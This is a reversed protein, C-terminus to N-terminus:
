TAAPHPHGLDAPNAAVQCLVQPLYCTPGVSPLLHMSHFPLKLKMGLIWKGKLEAMVVNAAILKASHESNGPRHQSMSCKYSSKHCLGSHM